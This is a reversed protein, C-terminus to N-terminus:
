QISVTRTSLNLGGSIDRGEIRITGTGAAGTAITFSVRYRGGGLSAATRTVASRGPQTFVVTPAARLPETSTLTITLTQGARVSTASLSVSFADVLVTRTQVSTGLSSRATVRVTYIGRPVALGAATRGNWTWGHAGAALTRNTWITRVLTSGSYIGVTVVATRSLSFTLRADPAYADGDHPYFAARSWRLTSLTRDVVVPISKLTANGALDRGTVRFTYNGDPVASGAANTGTWRVTGAAVNSVTWSRIVTTGHYIRATGGIRETASWAITTADETGDGNPSFHVPSATSTVVPATNDVRVTWTRVARNGAHDVAALTLRYLGDPVVAGANTRGTWTVSASAGSGAKTTVAAGVTSGSVPAASFTWGDAGTASLTAKVSDRVGDNDPSILTGTIAASSIVPAVTDITLGFSLLSKAAFAFGPNAFNSGGASGVLSVLYRGNPLTTGGVAGDWGVHRAGAALQTLARNGVLTGDARYVRLSLSDLTRDNTWDIAITDGSADDNPSFARHAAAAASAGISASGAGHFGLDGIAATVRTSNPAKVPSLWTTGSGSSAVWGPSAIPDAQRWATLPGWVQYWTYGDVSRPGGLIAVIDGSDYTGLKAASTDAYTRISLGDIRVLGFGGVALTSGAAATTAPVNWASLNGKPDRARVRFAYDHGDIGPWTAATAKTANLWGVWSGGDISVQVDYSVVSVDDRGVWRVTFAPNLQRAALTTIGTRPPTTDNVFKRQIAAWLEPRSGDYGLAWIGAGRLGYTNVLDYKAGLATADDVYLERWSLVCGYSTTCNERQYATWAVGEVTDYRRGHQALYDAATDYVVTTSAGTKTSSTNTANLASSSTSWARGYYPVGLILKSTPVQARYALITDRIDYGDRSLPAVSGVPSSGATRYDYGMIFIADAGGSATAAAIPYNGIRGTTDFTIQYGSHIRNLETRITRVLSTFGSEAGSALPEFDLNVGDAGRDRVAAAIQRALNLRATSSGLLAKQRALGTSNWGFSQVTLVVRTHNSHATSILSTMKASTWGSWGVTTSGDSNRKQLNGAADAGVGFYAITSIKRYDLSLSSSNVEWYPLFGFIEKRLGNLSIAAEPAGNVPDTGPQFSAVTAAIPNPLNAPTDDTSRAAPNAGDPRAHAGQARITAGDLRGAPLATPAVGDVTWNDGPRPRFGITVRGGPAFRITDAAHREAEEYHITPQLGGTPAADGRDALPRLAAVAPTSDIGVAGATPAAAGNAVVSVRPADMLPSAIRSAATTTANLGGQGAVVIAIIAAITRGSRRALSRRFPIAM